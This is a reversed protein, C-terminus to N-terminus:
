NISRESTRTTMPPQLVKVKATIKWPGSLIQTLMLDPRSVLHWVRFTLYTHYGSTSDMKRSRYAKGWQSYITHLSLEREKGAKRGRKRERESASAYLTGSCVCWCDTIVVNAETKRWTAAACCFLRRSTGCNRGLIADDRMYVRLLNTKFQCHNRVNQELLPICFM